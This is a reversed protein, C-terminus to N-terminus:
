ATKDFLLGQKTIKDAFEELAKAVERFEESPIERIVEKSEKDMVKIVPTEGGEDFEFQLNTATVPIFEDLKALNEKVEVFLKQQTSSKDDMEETKNSSKEAKEIARSTEVNTDARKQENLPVTNQYGLNSQTQVESM